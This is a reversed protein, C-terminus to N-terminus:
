YQIVNLTNTQPPLNSDLALIQVAAAVDQPKADIFIRASVRSPVNPDITVLEDSNLKLTSGAPIIGTAKSNAQFNGMVVEEAVFQTTYAVDYGAHNILIIRQRYNAYNTIYPLDVAATDYVVEGLLSAALGFGLDLYYAARKIALSKSEAALCFVPYDILEDISVQVINTQSYEALAYSAGACDDQQNLFARVSSFDGKITATRAATNMSPLLDSFVTILASTAPLRVAQTILTDFQVKGVAALNASADGLMFTSPARFTSTFKKFDQSFEVSHVFSRTFSTGITNTSQAIPSTIQYLFDGGNLAAAASAYYTYKVYLPQRYDLWLYSNSELVFETDAGQPTAAKVEVILYTDASNGGGVLTADYAVDAKIGTSAFHQNFRGNILDLRIYRESNSIGFGAKFRLNLEDGASNITLVGDAGLKENEIVELAYLLAQQEDLRLEASIAAHFRFSLICILFVRLYIM